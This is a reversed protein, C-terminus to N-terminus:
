FSLELSVPCHDSGLVDTHIAASSIRPQLGDSVFFYDLRWGVNRNRAGGIYSWWSYAEKQEPYLYRFSDVYGEEVAKDIWVREEPLFGTTNQNQKPRALDVEKHATNVDGCFVVQRGAARLANCYDLFDAKYAMKYPVRHHDRSGNPFYATIFVFDGYDAIITRGERDYEYIGLGIQVSQPELRSFLGVGSYGKKEASAWYTYYGDPERLDDTLQEPHCKTEQIGLIDPKEEELWNLFGKGHAARLGNVNWSYLSIM